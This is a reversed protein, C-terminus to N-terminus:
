WDGRYFLLVVAGRQLGDALRWMQGNQDVLEVDFM